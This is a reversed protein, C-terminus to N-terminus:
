GASRARLWDEAPSEADRKSPDNRAIVVNISVIEELGNRRLPTLEGNREDIEFIKLGAGLLRDVWAAASLGTRRIHAPEFDMILIVNPNNRLTGKLGEIVNPEWGEVDIKIMDPDSDALIEDLPAIPAVVSGSAGDSPLLTGHGSNQAVALTGLGQEAGAAIEKVSVVGGLGNASVTARLARATAPAPEIALVRGSSGVARAALLTYVGVSAGVDVFTGGAKLYREVVKQTGPEPLVGDALSGITALDDAPVALYGLPNRCMVLGQATLPIVSRSQLFDLKKTVREAHTRSRQEEDALMRRTSQIGNATGGEVFAHIQEASPLSALKEQLGATHEVLVQQVKQLGEGLQTRTTAFEATVAGSNLLAQMQETSPLAAIREHVAATAQTVLEQVRQMDSAAQSRSTSLGEVVTAGVLAHVQDASPLGAIRERLGATESELAAHIKRTEEALVTKATEIEQMVTGGVLTHVQEASPLAAIRDNLGATVEALADRIKRIEQTLDQKATALEDIVMGGGILTQVHEASPLSALKSQLDSTHQAFAHHVKQIEDGLHARTSSIEQATTSEGFMARVQEISPLTGLRSRLSGAEQALSLQVQRIGDAFESRISAALESPGARGDNLQGRMDAAFRQLTEGNARASTQTTEALRDLSAEIREYANRQQELISLIRAQDRVIDSVQSSIIELATGHVQARGDLSRLQQGVPGTDLLNATHAAGATWPANAWRLLRQAGSRVMSAGRQGFTQTEPAQGISKELSM